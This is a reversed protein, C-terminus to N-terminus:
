AAAVTAPFHRGFPGSGYRAARRSLPAQLGLRARRRTRPGLPTALLFDRPPPRLSASPSQRRSPGPAYTRPPYRGLAAHQVSSPSCNERSFAPASGGMGARRTRLRQSPTPDSNAPAGAWNSLGDPRPIWFGLSKLASSAVSLICTYPLLPPPHILEEGEREGAGEGLRTQKLRQLESSFLNRQGVNEKPQAGM